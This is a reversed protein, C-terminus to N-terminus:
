EEKRASDALPGLLNLITGMQSIRIAYRDLFESLHFDNELGGLEEELLGRSLEDILRLLAREVQPLAAKCVEPLHSFEAQWRALFHQWRVTHNQAEISARLLGIQERQTELIQRLLEAVADSPAPMAPPTLAPTPPAVVFQFHM